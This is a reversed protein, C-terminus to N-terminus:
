ESSPIILEDGPQIRDPDVLGNADVIAQVTVGYKLAIASLTEGASVVHIIPDGTTETETLTTTNTIGTTADGDGAPTVEVNGDIEGDTDGATDPTGAPSVTAPEDTTTEGPQDTTAAPASWGLVAPLIKDFIIPSALSVVFVTGVLVVVLLIFKVYEGWDHPKRTEERGAPAPAADPTEEAAPAAPAATPQAEAPPGAQDAASTQLENDSSM